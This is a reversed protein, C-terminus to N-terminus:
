FALRFRSAYIGWYSQWESFLFRMRWCLRLMLREAYMEFLEPRVSFEWFISLIIGGTSNLRPLSSWFNYM